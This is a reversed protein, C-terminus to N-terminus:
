MEAYDSETLNNIAVDKLLHHFKCILAQWEQGVYKERNEDLLEEGFVNALIVLSENYIGDLQKLVQLLKVTNNSVNVQCNEM